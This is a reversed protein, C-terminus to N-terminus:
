NTSYPDYSLNDRWRNNLLSVEKTKVKAKRTVSEHHIAQVSNAQVISFGLARIKQCYDVDNFNLPFSASFGGVAKWTAKLQFMLAGTVGVVEHDVVLDMLGHALSSAGHHFHTANGRIFTHGGHQISFDPYVLLSGVLGVNPLKLTGFLTDLPSDIGFEVDDNLLLTHENNAELFGINCRRSFNFINKDVVKKVPIEPYQLLISEQPMAEGEGHILVIEDGLERRLFPLLSRLLSELFLEGSPSTKFATPIIISVGESRDPYKARFAGPFGPVNEIEVDPTFKRLHDQAAQLGAEFAWTKNLPDSVTSNQSARWYYLPTPIHVIRDTELSIRLALDHDQSGDYVSQFGGVANFIERRVAMFHTAYMNFILRIPSWDPKKVIRIAKGAEDAHFCDSYIFDSDLAAVSLPKWWDKVLMDDQDLFVLFEGKAESAAINSAQSIGIHDNSVHIKAGYKRALRRLTNINGANNEGDIVLIHESNPAQASQMADRLETIKPKYLPTIVSFKISLEKL